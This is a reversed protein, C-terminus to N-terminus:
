SGKFFYDKGDGSIWATTNVTPNCDPPSDREFTERPEATDLISMDQLEAYTFNHIVPKPTSSESQVAPIFILGIILIALMFKCRNM